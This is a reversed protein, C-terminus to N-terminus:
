RNKKFLKELKKKAKQSLEILKKSIFKIQKLSLNKM